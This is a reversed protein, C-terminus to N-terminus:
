FNSLVSNMVDLHDFTLLVLNGGLGRVVYPIACDIKLRHQLSKAPILIIPDAVLSRELWNFNEEVESVELSGNAM